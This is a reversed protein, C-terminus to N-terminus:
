VAKRKKRNPFMGFIIGSRLLKYESHRVSYKGVFGCSFLLWFHAYLTMVNSHFLSWKEFIEHVFKGRVAWEEHNDWGTKMASLESLCENNKTWNHSLIRDIIGSTNSYKLYILEKRLHDYDSKTIQVSEVSIWFSVMQGIFLLCFMSFNNPNNKVLKM